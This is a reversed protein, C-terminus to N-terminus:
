ASGASNLASSQWHLKRGSGLNPGLPPTCIPPHHRCPLGATHNHLIQRDKCYPWPSCDQRGSNNSDLRQLHQHRRTQILGDTPLGFTIPRFLNDEGGLQHEYLVLMIRKPQLVSSRLRVTSSQLCCPGRRVVRRLPRYGGDRGCNAVSLMLQHRIGRFKGIRGM